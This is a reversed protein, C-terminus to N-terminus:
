EWLSSASGWELANLPKHVSCKIETAIKYFKFNIRDIEVYFITIASLRLEPPIIRKSMETEVRCWRDVAM